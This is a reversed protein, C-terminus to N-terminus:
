YCSLQCCLHPPTEFLGVLMELVKHYQDNSLFHPESPHSVERVTALM